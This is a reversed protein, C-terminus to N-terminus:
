ALEDLLAKAEQLVPTSFGETFWGYVPALLDRAEAPKGQDCWLRAFSMAARLEWLRASQQQAIAIAERYSAEAAAFDGMALLVDGQLRVTEAHAWREETDEAVRRAEALHGVADQWQRAIRCADGLLSLNRPGLLRFGLAHYGALGATILPIGADAQGLAALCWGRHVLAWARYLGLAHETAVAQVADACRLLSGPDLGVCSDTRWAYALAVALTLPHSLRRADEVAADRESLAQDLHGLYTSLSFKRIRLDVRPDNPLLKSYFPRHAPDYVATGREAHARGATFEGLHFCVLASANCGMVQTPIDGTADGL